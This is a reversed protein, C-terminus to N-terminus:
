IPLSPRLTFRRPSGARHHAGESPTISRNPTLSSRVTSAPDVGNRRAARGYMAELESGPHVGVVRLRVESFGWRRLISVAELLCETWKGM